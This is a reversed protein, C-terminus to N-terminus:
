VDARECTRVSECGCVRMDARECMERECMRM